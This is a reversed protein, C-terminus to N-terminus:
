INSRVDKDQALRVRMVDQRLSDHRESSVSTAKLREVESRLEEVLSSHDTGAIANARIADPVYIFSSSSVYNIFSTDIYHNRWSNM